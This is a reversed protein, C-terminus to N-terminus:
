DWEILLPSEMTPRLGFIEIRNGTQFAADVRPLQRWLM